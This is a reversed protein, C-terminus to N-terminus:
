NLREIEIIKRVFVRYVVIYVILHLLFVIVSLLIFKGGFKVFLSPYITMIYIGGISFALSLGIFLAIVFFEPYKVSEERKFLEWTLVNEKLKKNIEKELNMCYIGIRMMRYEEGLWIMVICLCFAPIVLSMLNVALVLLPNASYGTSLAFLIGSIIIGITALAFSIINYRIGPSSITSYNKLVEYDKLMVEIKLKEQDDM